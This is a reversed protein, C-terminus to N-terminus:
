APWSEADLPAFDREIGDAEVRLDDEERAAAFRKTEDALRVAMALDEIAMEVVADQTLALGHLEVMNRVAEVTAIPLRYTRKVKM